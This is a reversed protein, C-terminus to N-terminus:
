SRHLNSILTFLLIISILILYIFAMISFYKKRINFRNRNELDIDNIKFFLISFFEELERKLMEIKEQYFEIRNGPMDIQREKERFRAIDYQLSLIYKINRILATEFKLFVEHIEEYNRRSLPYNSEWLFIIKSDRKDNSQSLDSAVKCDFYYFYSESQKPLLGNIITVNNPRAFYNMYGNSTMSNKYYAFLELGDKRNSYLFLSDRSEFPIIVAFNNAIDDFSIPSLNFKRM